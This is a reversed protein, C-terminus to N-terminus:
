AFSIKVHFLEGKGFVDRRSFGERLFLPVKFIACIRGKKGIRDPPNPSTWLVGVSLEFAQCINECAESPRPLLDSKKAYPSYNICCTIM